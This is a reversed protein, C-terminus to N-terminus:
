VFDLKWRPLHFDVNMRQLYPVCAFQVLRELFHGLRAYVSKGDHRTRYEHYIEFPDCVKRYFISQRRHKVQPFVRFNATQHRM